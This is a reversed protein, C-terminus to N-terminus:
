AVGQWARYWHHVPVTRGTEIEIRDIIRAVSQKSRGRSRHVLDILDFGPWAGDTHWWAAKPDDPALGHYDAADMGELARLVEARPAGLIQAWLRVSRSPAVDGSNANPWRMARSLAVPLPVPEPHPGLVVGLATRDDESGYGAALGVVRVPRVRAAEAAKAVGYWRLAILAEPTRESM